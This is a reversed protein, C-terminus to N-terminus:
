IAKDGKILRMLRDMGEQIFLKFGESRVKDSRGKQETRRQSKGLPPLRQGTPLPIIM